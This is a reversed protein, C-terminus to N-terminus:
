GLSSRTQHRAKNRRVRKDYEPRWGCQTYATSRHRMRRRENERSQKILRRINLEDEWPYDEYFWTLLLAGFLLCVMFIM